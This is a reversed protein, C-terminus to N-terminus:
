QDAPLVRFLRYTVREHEHMFVLAALLELVEHTRGTDFSRDVSGILAEAQEGGAEGEPDDAFAPSGLIAEALAHGEAPVGVRPGGDRARQQAREVTSFAQRGRPQSAECVGDRDRILGGLKGRDR